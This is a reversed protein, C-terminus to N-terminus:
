STMGNHTMQSDLEAMGSHTMHLVHCTSVLSWVPYYHSAEQNFIGPNEYVTSYSLPIYSSRLIGPNEYVNSYPLLIHSSRLIGPNEYVNSYPLLIHSSRLIGPNEYVNSYPLLIHSSRLIRKVQLHHCIRDTYTGDSVTFLHRPEM